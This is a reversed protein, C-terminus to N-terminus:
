SNDKFGGPMSRKWDRIDDLSAFIPNLLLDGTSENRGWHPWNHFSINMSHAFSEVDVSPILRLLVAPASYHDQMADYINKSVIISSYVSEGDSYSFYNHTDSIEKLCSEPVRQKQWTDFDDQFRREINIETLQADILRERKNEQTSKLKIMEKYHNM